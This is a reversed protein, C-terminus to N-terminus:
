TRTRSAILHWLAGERGGYYYVSYFVTNEIVHRVIRFPDGSEELVDSFRSEGLVINYPLAIRSEDGSLVVYIRQIKGDQTTGSFISEIKLDLKKIPSVLNQKLRASLCTWSCRGLGSQRRRSRRYRGTTPRLEKGGQLDLPPTTWQTM